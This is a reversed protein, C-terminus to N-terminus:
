RGEKITDEIFRSSFTGIWTKWRGGVKEQQLIAPVGVKSETEVRLIEAKGSGITTRAGVYEDDASSLSESEVALAREGMMLQVRQGPLGAACIKKLIRFNEKKLDQAKLRKESEVLVYSGGLVPSPDTIGAATTIGLILELNLPSVEVALVGGKALWLVRDDEELDVGNRKLLMRLNRPQDDGEPEGSALFMWFTPPVPIAQYRKGNALEIWERNKHQDRELREEILVNGGKEHQVWEDFDSGDELVRGVEVSAVLTSKGDLSGLEILTPVEMAGVLGTKLSFEAGPMKSVLEMRCDWSTDEFWTQFEAKWELSGSPARLEMEQGQLALGSLAALEKGDKRIRSVQLNPRGLEVGPLRFVCVEARLQWVLFEELYRQLLYHNRLETRVVLRGTRENFVARGERFFGCSVAWKSFDRLKDGEQFFRSEFPEKELRVGKFRPGKEDGELVPPGPNGIADFSEPKARYARVEM